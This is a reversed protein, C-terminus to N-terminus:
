TAVAERALTARRHGKAFHAIALICGGAIFVEGLNDLKLAQFPPTASIFMLIGGIM